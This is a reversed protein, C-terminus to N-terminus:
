RRAPIHLIADPDALFAERCGPSCFVYDRGAYTERAAAQAPEVTMGCVPDTATDGDGTGAPEPADSLYKAPNAQFRERCADCCFYVTIGEHVATAPANAQEVQMGCVPDTAYGTGGGLRERHRYAWYIVAFAAIAAINLFTTYNWSFHTAAVVTPQASPLLNLGSFLYEVALGGASAVLWLLGFLRLSLRTGYFKRYILVLPLTILDAFIFAVVGGFSIGGQWLAAALPVNGVSCVFSILALFPGLVANELNSAFGHGTLFLSQWVGTPVAVALFGAVVFGIALEKRLMTLDSVTYGAADAWKGKDRLRTRLPTGAAEDADPEGDHEDGGSGTTDQNLRDRAAEVMRTPILQPLLLGLLVIMIAGGVYEALTFQWGIL